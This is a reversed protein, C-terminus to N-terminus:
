LPLSPPSLFGTACTACAASLSASPALGLAAATCYFLSRLCPQSDVCGSPPTTLGGDPPPDPVCPLDNIRYSDSNLVPRPLALRNSRRVVQPPM